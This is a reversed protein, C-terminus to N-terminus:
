WTKRITLLGKPAKKGSSDSIISFRDSFSRKVEFFGKYSSEKPIRLSKGKIFNSSIRSEIDSHGSIETASEKILSVRKNRDKRKSKIIASSPVGGSFDENNKDCARDGFGQVFCLMIDDPYGERM